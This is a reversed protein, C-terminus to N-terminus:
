SLTGASYFSIASTLHISRYSPSVCVSPVSPITHYTPFGGKLKRLLARGHHNRSSTPFFATHVLARGKLPEM